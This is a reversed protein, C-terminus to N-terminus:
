PPGFNQRLETLFDEYSDKLFPRNDYDAKNLIDPEFWNLAM